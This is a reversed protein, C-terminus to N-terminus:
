EDMDKSVSLGTGIGRINFVSIVVYRNGKHEANGSNKKKEVESLM